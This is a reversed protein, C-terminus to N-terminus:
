QYEECHWIGNEPKPYQCTDRIACNSCIGKFKNFDTNNSHSIVNKKVNRFVNGSEAKAAIYDDYEECFWVPRMLNKRKTCLSSYNCSLCLDNYQQANTM